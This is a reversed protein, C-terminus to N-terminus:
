DSYKMLWGRAKALVGRPTKHPSEPFDSMRKWCRNEDSNYAVVDFLTGDSRLSVIEFRYLSLGKEVIYTKVVENVRLSDDDDELNAIQDNM